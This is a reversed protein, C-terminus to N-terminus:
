IHILSLTLTSELNQLFAPQIEKLVPIVDHRLKNRVYKKEKNSADERWELDNQKAYNLIDKKSFKLLPRVINANQKPIGTLGEIGTGRLLNIFFTEM